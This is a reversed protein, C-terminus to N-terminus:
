KSRKVEEQKLMNQIHQSVKLWKYASTRPQFFTFRYLKNEIFFDLHHHLHINIGEMNALPFSLKKRNHGTFHITSKDNPSWAIKGKSITKFPTVEDSISLEITDQMSSKWVEESEPQLLNDKLFELQWSNWEHITNFIIPHKVAELTGNPTYRVTYDCSSCQFQDQHSQLHSPMQCHPCIFLLRELYHALNKGKYPFNNKLQWEMENYALAETLMHHIQEPTKNKLTNIDWKKEFSLSIIGKRFSNAWRPQSLYGGRITAVVVPINLLKVLKATSFILPETTGDWNRNGEPFIGIVRNHKKAKIVSRITRTDNKFKMKPIAGTFDLLRKLLPHRFLTEGAIFCIPEKVYSNLILPDWNTVHHGLIIYPGEMELTDNREIIIKSRSNIFAKIPSLLILRALKGPKKEISM